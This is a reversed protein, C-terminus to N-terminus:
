TASRSSRSHAAWCLMRRRFDYGTNEEILHIWRRERLAQAVSTMVHQGYEVYLDAQGGVGVVVYQGPCSAVIATNDGLVDVVKSAEGRKRDWLSANDEDRRLPKRTRGLTKVSDTVCKFRDQM